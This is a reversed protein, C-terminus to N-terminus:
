SKLFILYQYKKLIIYDNNLKNVCIKEFDFCQWNNSKYVDFGNLNKIKVINTFDISRINPNFLNEFSYNSSNKIVLLILLTSISFKSIVSTFNKFYKFHFIVM